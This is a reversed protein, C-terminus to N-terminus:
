SLGCMGEWGFVQQARRLVVIICPRAALILVFNYSGNCMVGSIVEFCPARAITNYNCRVARIKRADCMGAYFLAASLVIAAVLRTFLSDYYSIFVVGGWRGYWTRCDGSFVAMDFLVSM